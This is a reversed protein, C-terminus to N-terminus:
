LGNQENHGRQIQPTIFYIDLSPNIMTFLMSCILISYLISLSDLYSSNVNRASTRTETIFVIHYHLILRFFKFILHSLHVILKVALSAYLLVVYFM